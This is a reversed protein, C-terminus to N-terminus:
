MEEPSADDEIEAKLLTEIEEKIASIRARITECKRHLEAPDDPYAEGVLGFEINRVTKRYEESLADNLNSMEPYLANLREQQEERKM